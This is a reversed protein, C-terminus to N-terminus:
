PTIRLVVGGGAALGRQSVYVSGDPAALIGTPLSLDTAITTRAGVPTVRVVSGVGGFFPMSAYQLVYLSGDAGWDMDTIMSFGAAYVTPAEGPVVRFIRASGPVFPAGTLTSVYLAGDPGRTVETPVAEASTFNPPFGPPVPQAPFTAVVATAGNVHAEVLSNGGADAVFVRNADAYLGYPNSDVPGGDPNTNEIAAIDAIVRWTGNPAISLLSGFGDALAGLQARADPLGGWGITVYMNGLGQFGVDNPGIVDTFPANYVSPLGTVVREQRGKWLRSVSGSGSYCNVGRALTACVTTAEPTGAEAVYLGGNPAWAMGRPSNLGSMVVTVVSAMPQVLLDTGAHPDTPTDACAGLLLVASVLPIHSRFLSPM